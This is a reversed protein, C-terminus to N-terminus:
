PICFNFIGTFKSVGYSGLYVGDKDYFHIARELMFGNSFTTTKARDARNLMDTYYPREIELFKAAREKSYFGSEGAEIIRLNQRIVGKNFELDEEVNNELVLGEFQDYDITFSASGDIHIRLSIIKGSEYLGNELGTFHCFIDVSDIADPTKVTPHEHIVPPNARAQPHLLIAAVLGLSFVLAKRM